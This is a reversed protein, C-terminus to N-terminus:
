RIQVNYMRKPSSTVGVKNAIQRWIKTETQERELLEDESEDDYDNINPYKEDDSDDGLLCVNKRIRRLSTRVATNYRPSYMMQFSNMCNSNPYDDQQGDLLIQFVRSELM